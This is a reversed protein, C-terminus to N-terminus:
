LHAKARELSKRIATIRKLASTLANKDNGAIATRIGSLERALTDLGIQCDRVSHKVEPQPVDEKLEKASKEVAEELYATHDEAYHQPAQGQLVFELFLESEAAFSHASRIESEAQDRNISKDGSCGALVVAALALVALSISPRKRLM